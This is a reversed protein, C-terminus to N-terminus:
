FSSNHRVRFWPTTFTYIISNVHVNEELLRRTITESYRTAEFFLTFGNKATHNLIKELNLNFAKALDILYVCSEEIDNMMLGSPYDRSKEYRNYSAMQFLSMLCNGGERNQYELVSRAVKEGTEGQRGLEILAELAERKPFSHCCADVLRPITSGKQLDLKALQLMVEINASSSFEETNRSLLLYFSSYGANNRSTIEEYTWGGYKDGVERQLIESAEIHISDM